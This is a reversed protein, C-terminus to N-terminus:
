LNIVVNGKKHGKEVYEHAYPLEELPYQKDIITKLRGEEILTRIFNLAGTKNLSMAFIVKKKNGPKTLFSQIINTLTMVTVVYKGKNKLIKRCRAFSSKGVTDFIIDYTDDTKTFDEKTYDVIKYAGLSKVLEINKTSCVGTVEAGFFKALQVAFTGISGSAGNILVKQGEQINAKERLFFLATTAGDVVSAAEEFSMNGPKIALSGNENMCKYQAYCGTGFGRFAYVEDGPKFKRVKRGISEINGSFETGLIQFKKKPRNFGLLIRSLFTDGRRMMCDAATVTAAHIKICVEDNKPAPKEVERLKLVDPPGYKTYLVAKMINSNMKYNKLDFIYV